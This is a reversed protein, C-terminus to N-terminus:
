NISKNFLDERDSETAAPPMLADRMLQRKRVLLAHLNQDFSTRGNPLIALPIHVFVPRTQGIRLVRGTCQDEVAPNWWRSLHVVHNAQTLTLGVGGARPSLIMVDFDDSNVQFRNVRAQRAAGAVEGSIIMPPSRLAYRRQIVGALRAQMELDDLFILVRERNAAICDLTAFTTHMRASMEIFELDTADCNHDPHLSLARLRQLAELMAGPQRVARAQAIAAEYVERQVSPMIADEIIEEPARFNALKDQKMRRLLIPPRDGHWCDLSSKLLRLQGLDSSREYKASFGKLDGLYAPHVTDTICWLDALRNEVPTGTLAVRFDANVAKAADTIRVGPTKIKQAEDFLV